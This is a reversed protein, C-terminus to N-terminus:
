ILALQGHQPDCEQPSFTAVKDFLTTLRARGESRSKKLSVAGMQLLINNGPTCLMDEYEAVFLPMHLKLTSKGAEITGGKEQAEIVIMAKSLGIIVQNRNMAHYAKWVEDPKCQSLVLVRSWDWVDRLAQKIRFHEIGEPIVLITSGGSALATHHAMMDVGSAYGSVVVSGSRAVQEACDKATELGKKSANRSGCFGIGVKELLSLNGRFYLTAPTKKGLVEKLNQPYSADELRLIGSEVRHMDSSDHHRARYTSEAMASM